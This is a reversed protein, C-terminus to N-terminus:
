LQDDNFHEKRYAIIKPNRDIEDNWIGSRAFEGTPRQWDEAVETVWNEGKVNNRCLRYHKEVFGIGDIFLAGCVVCVHKTLRVEAVM